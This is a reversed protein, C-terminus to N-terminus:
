AAKQDGLNQVGASDRLSVSSLFNWGELLPKWRMPRIREVPAPRACSLSRQEVIGEADIVVVGALIADLVDRLDRAM